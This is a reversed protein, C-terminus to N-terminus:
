FFTSLFVLGQISCGFPNKMGQPEVRIEKVNRKGEEFWHKKYGTNRINDDM